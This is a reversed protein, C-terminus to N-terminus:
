YFLIFRVRSSLCTQYWVLLPAFCVCYTRHHWECDPWDFLLVVYWANLTCQRSPKQPCREKEPPFSCVMHSRGLGYGVCRIVKAAPRVRHFNRHCRSECSCVLFTKLTPMAVTRMVLSPRVQCIRLQTMACRLDLPPRAAGPHSLLMDAAVDAAGAAMLRQGAALLLVGRHGGVVEM